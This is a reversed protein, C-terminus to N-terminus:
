KSITEIEDILNSINQKTSLISDACKDGLEDAQKVILEKDDLTTLGKGGMKADSSAQASASM